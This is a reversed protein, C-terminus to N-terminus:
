RELDHFGMARVLTGPGISDGDAFLSPLTQRTESYGLTEIYGLAGM